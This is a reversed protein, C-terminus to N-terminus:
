SEVRRAYECKKQQSEQKFWSRTSFWMSSMGVYMVEDRSCVEQKM